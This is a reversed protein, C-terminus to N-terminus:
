RKMSRSFSVVALLELVRQVTRAIGRASIMEGAKDGLRCRLRQASSGARRLPPSPFAMVGSSFGGLGLQMAKLRSVMVRMVINRRALPMPGQEAGEEPHAPHYM